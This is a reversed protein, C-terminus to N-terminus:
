LESPLTIKDFFHRNVLDGGTRNGSRRIDACTAADEGRVQRVGAHRPARGPVAPPGARRRVEGVVRLFLKQEDAPKGAIVAACFAVSCWRDVERDAPSFYAGPFPVPDTM